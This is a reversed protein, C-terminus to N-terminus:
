QEVLVRRLIKGSANKPIVDLFQVEKLRKYPAVRDNVYEMIDKNSIKADKNLVVFAKPREGTKEDPIGVVAADFVAPHERIIGELEAPPVQYANVKILEKLRDAITVFGDEDIKGLDGSRMWGDVFVDANAKPNNKYGKMVNPGKILLEGLENPGMINMNSDVIRLECNPLAVGVASYNKSNNPTITVLPSAETMGYGQNFQMEHDVKSMFREADALPLPAAGVTVYQLKEFYKAKVEPNSALFLVTPPALYMTSIKHKKFANVFTEPQFKPLTVLKLGAALKHLTVVSIGYSHFMPLYALTIDQNTATTDNFKQILKENQQEFNAVINKHMLEVAKPLGTTGSSYLLFSVDQPSRKVEKLVNKDVHTDNILEKFSVTEEPRSKEIDIAIVPISLNSRKLAEKVILVNGADTVILKAESSQIQKQTEYATYMPNITAVIGGACLIGLMVIPFEPSNPLMICVIDGDRIKFKKRLSAGFIQSQKYLQLYTYKRDTIGCVLATKDSWKDLNKWMYETVTVDPVVIDDFPSKVIKDVTWIHKMKIFCVRKEIVKSLVRTLLM